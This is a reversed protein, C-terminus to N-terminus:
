QYDSFVVVTVPADPPGKYPLGSLDLTKKREYVSISNDKSSSLLFLRDKGTVALRDFKRDVPMFDVVRNQFLSYVLIKGPILIYMTKGDTASITALPSAEINFQNKLTWEVSAQANSIFLLM